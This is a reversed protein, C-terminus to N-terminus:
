EITTVVQNTGLEILETGRRNLFKKFSEPYDNRFNQLMNLSHDCKEQFQSEMLKKKMMVYDYQPITEETIEQNEETIEQNEETIEQNEETIEQNEETIKQNEETIEQNIISKSKVLVESSVTSERNLIQNIKENDLKELKVICKRYTTNETKFPVSKPSSPSTNISLEKHSLYKLSESKCGHYKPRGGRIGTVGTLFFILM